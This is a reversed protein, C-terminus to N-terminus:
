RLGQMIKIASGRPNQRGLEWSKVSDYCVGVKEAFERRTLNLGERLNRIEEAKM